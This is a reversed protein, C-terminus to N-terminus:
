LPYKINPIKKEPEWILYYYGFHIIEHISEFIKINIEDRAIRSKGM